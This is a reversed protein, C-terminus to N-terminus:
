GLDDLVATITRAGASRHPEDDATCLASGIGIAWGAARRATAADPAVLGLFRRRAELGLALWAVALDTAPDGAGLDGFDIVATLTGAGDVLLNFPHLDGHLWVPPGNWRTADAARRYASAAEAARPVAGSAIRELVADAREALPVGRVPNRPADVPAPVHLRTVVVALAEAVAVSDSATAGPGGAGITRGPFWPVVSWSWPYGLAPRGLRAPVPLRAADGVLGALMPLWAQENRVLEAAAARRPLRMALDDGLRAIVNDWGNAVIRM